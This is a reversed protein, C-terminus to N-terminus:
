AAGRERTITKSPTPNSRHSELWDSFRRIDILVRGGPKVIAADLGNHEANFILWRLSAESFVSSRAALQKVTVLDNVDMM